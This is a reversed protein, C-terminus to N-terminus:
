SGDASPILRRDLIQIPAVPLNVGLPATTLPRVQNCPSGYCPKLLSVRFVPHIRAAPPLELEYAMAGIRRLIRFPGFYHNALKRSSGLRTASFSQQVRQLNTKLRQLITQWQTFTSDLSELKSSGPSYGIMTPPKRGYLAKIPSM